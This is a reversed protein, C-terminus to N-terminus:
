QLGRCGMLVATRFHGDGGQALGERPPQGAGGEGGGGRGAWVSTGSLPWRCVCCVPRGGRLTACGVMTLSGPKASFNVGRLTSKEAKTDWTFEGDTIAVDGPATSEDAGQARLPQRAPEKTPYNTTTCLKRRSGRSAMTCFGRLWPGEPVVGM